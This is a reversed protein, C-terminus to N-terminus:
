ARAWVWNDALSLSNRKSLREDIGTTEGYLARSFGGCGVLFDPGERSAQEFEEVFEQYDPARPPRPVDDQSPIGDPRGGIYVLADPRPTGEPLDALGLLSDRASTDGRFQILASHNELKRHFSAGYEENLRLEDESLDRGGPDILGVGVASVLHSRGPRPPPVTTTESLTTGLPFRVAFPASVCAALWPRPAASPSGRSWPIFRSGPGSPRASNPGGGTFQEADVAIAVTFPFPRKM